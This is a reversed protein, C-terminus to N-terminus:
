ISDVPRVARRNRKVFIRHGNPQLRAPLDATFLNNDLTSIASPTINERMGHRHAIGETRDDSRDVHKYIDGFVLTGLFGHALAFQEIFGNAIRNGITDPNAVM